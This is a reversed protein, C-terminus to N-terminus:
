KNSILFNSGVIKACGLIMYEIVSDSASSKVMNTIEIKIIDGKSISVNSWTKSEGNTLEASGKSVDNIYLTAIGSDLSAATCEFSLRGSLLSTRNILTESTTPNGPPIRLSGSSFYDDGDEFEMVSSLLEVLSKELVAQGNGTLVKGPTLYTKGTGGKNVPITGYLDAASSAKVETRWRTGDYCIEVPINASLWDNETAGNTFDNTTTGDVPMIISIVPLSNIKLTPSLTTSTKNPIM